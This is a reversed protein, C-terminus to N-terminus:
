FTPHHCSMTFISSGKGNYVKFRDIGHLSVACHYSLAFSAFYADTFWLLPDIPIRQGIRVMKRFVHFQKLICAQFSLCISLWIFLIVTLLLRPGPIRSETCRPLFFDSHFPSYLIPHTLCCTNHSGLTQSVIWHSEAPATSPRSGRLHNLAWYILITM